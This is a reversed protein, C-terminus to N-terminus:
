KALEKRLAEIQLRRTAQDAMPDFAIPRELLRELHKAAAERTASTERDMLILWITPETLLDIATDRPSEDRLADALSQVIRHVRYQQEPDLSKRDLSKLYAIVPRGLARLRRDAAERRAYQEDGLQSVLEAWKRRDPLKDERAARLMEREVEDAHEALKWDPRFITLSPLVYQECAERHALLLHWITPAEITTKEGDKGFALTLPGAPPQLFEGPVIEGKEGAERQIAVRGNTAASFVLNEDPSILRYAVSAEDSLHDHQVTVQEKRGQGDTSWPSQFTGSQRVQIMIRGSRVGFHLRSKIYRLWQSEAKVQADAERPALVAGLLLILLLRITARQFFYM